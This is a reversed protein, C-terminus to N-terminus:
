NVHVNNVQFFTRSHRISHPNCVDEKRRWYSGFCRGFLEYFCVTKSLTDRRLWLFSHVSVIVGFRLSKSASKTYRNAAPYVAWPEFGLLLLFNKRRWFRIAHFHPGILRRNLPCCPEKEPTLRNSCSTSQEDGALASTLFSHLIEVGKHAKM